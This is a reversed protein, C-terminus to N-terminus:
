QDATTTFVSTSELLMKFTLLAKVAEVRTVVNSNTDTLNFRFEFDGAGPASTALVVAVGPSADGGNVGAVLGATTSGAGGGNYMSMSLASM